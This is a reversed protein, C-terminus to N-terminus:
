SLHLCFVGISSMESNGGAETEFRPRTCFYVKILHDFHYFHFQQSLPKARFRMKVSLRFAVRFHGM